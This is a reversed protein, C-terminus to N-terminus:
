EDEIWGEEGRGIRASLWIDCETLELEEVAIATGGTVILSTESDERGFEFLDDGEGSRPSRSSSTFRGATKEESASLAFGSPQIATSSSIENGSISAEAASSEAEATM